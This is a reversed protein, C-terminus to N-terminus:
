RGQGPPNGPGVGLYSGCGWDDRQMQKLGELGPKGLDSRHCHRQGLM